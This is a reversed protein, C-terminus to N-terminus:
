RALPSFSWISLSTTDSLSSATEYFASITVGRSATTLLVRDRFVAVSRQLSSSSMTSNLSAASALCSLMWLCSSSSSSFSLSVISALRDWACILM